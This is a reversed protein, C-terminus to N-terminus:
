EANFTSDALKTKHILLIGGKQTGKIHYLANDAAFLYDWLRNDEVPVSNRIGQSITVYPAM